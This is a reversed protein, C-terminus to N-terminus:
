IDPGIVMNFTATFMDATVNQAKRLNARVPPATMVIEKCDLTEYEHRDFDDALDGIVKSVWSAFYDSSKNHDNRYKVSDQVFFILDYTNVCRRPRVTLDQMWVIIFPTRLKWNIWNQEDLFQLQERNENLHTRNAYDEGAWRQWNVSREVITKFLALPEAVAGFGTPTYEALAVGSFLGLLTRRSEATVSSGSLPLVHDGGGFELMSLRKEATDIAM